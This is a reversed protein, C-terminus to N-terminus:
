NGKVYPIPNVYQGNKRVEFHLHPGTSLGTSGIKAIKQGKKVTQGVSVLLTSNHAYLTMTEGGHDIVVTKGYGGLGGASVVKGDGSSVVDKGSPAPIDIGSHFKSTKLIPHIRNGFPSSVKTYGPVAWQMVGGVYVGTSQLSRLKNSIENAEKELTDLQKALAVKDKSLDEKLREQEGRSVQLRKQKQEMEARLNTLQRKQNELSIKKEEISDRQEQMYKLLEVDHNMVKKVMDLNTLLESFSNSSLLVEAYGITGSKYMVNLRSGMLEQKDDIKVEANDLENITVGIQGETNSINGQLSTIENESKDIEVELKQIQVIVQGEKKQTQKLQNTVNKKKTENTKLQNNYQTANNAFSFLSTTTMSFLIVMIIGHKKKM